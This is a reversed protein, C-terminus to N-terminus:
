RTADTGDPRLLWEQEADYEPDATSAPTADIDFLYFTRRAVEVRFGREQLDRVKKLVAPPLTVYEEPPLERESELLGGDALVTAEVEVGDEQWEAEYAVFM